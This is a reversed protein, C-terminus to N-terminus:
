REEMGSWIIMKVAVQYVNTIGLEMGQHLDVTMNGEPGKLATYVKLDLSYDTEDTYGAAPSGYSGKLGTPATSRKATGLCCDINAPSASCTQVWESSVTSSTNSCSVTKKHFSPCFGNTMTLDM